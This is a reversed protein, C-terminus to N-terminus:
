LHMFGKIKNFMDDDIDIFSINNNIIYEKIYINSDDNFAIYNKGKYSISKIYHYKKGDIYIDLPNM